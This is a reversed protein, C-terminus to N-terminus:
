VGPSGSRLDQRAQDSAMTEQGRHARLAPVVEVLMRAAVKGNAKEGLHVRDMYCPEREEAFLETLDHFNEDHALAEHAVLYQHVRNFFDVAKDRELLSEEYASRYKKSQVTPQWYFIPQFGRARGIDEVIRVNDAYRQVVERALQDAREPNPPAPFPRPPELFRNLRAIGSSYLLGSILGGPRKLLQFERARDKEAFTQGAFGTLLSSGADNAGDYFIVVDPAPERGLAKLLVIVEQSSVHSNQGFNKVQVDLGAEALLRSLASPVTGEDRAGFGWTTSGGFMFLRADDKGEAKNWTRRLGDPGVNIYRGQFPETEFYSYPVWHERTQRQERWYDVAWPAGGYADAKARWPRDLKREVVWTAVLDAALILLLTVSAAIWVARVFVLSRVLRSGKHPPVPVAKRDLMSLAGRRELNGSFNM